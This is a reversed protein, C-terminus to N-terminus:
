IVNRAYRINPHLEPVKPYPIKATKDMIKQIEEYDIM